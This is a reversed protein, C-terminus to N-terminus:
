PLGRTRRIAWEACLLGAFPVMWWPSRMPHAPRTVRQPPHAQRMADVLAPVEAVPFARGGTAAAALALAEADASSAHLVSPAVTVAADGRLDGSSVSLSYAGAPGARWAGEYVGPEATPWLRVAEDIKADPSVARATLPPLAIVDADALERIRAVITMRGGPRVLAPDVDVDLAPPVAAASSVLVGRWFAGFEEGRYRWADLAGAFIVAGEGRRASFVVPASDAAALVTAAPPLQAPVVLESAHLGAGLAAPADLSRSSFAAVGVLDLYRGAPARDPVFIAVGGRREVFWRLADLDAARLAEPGGIAVVEFPALTSRTLAAPPDGARTAVSQAARQLSSVAVAPQGELARRVFVAPWSVAAEVILMRIPGRVAPVAVDAVNDDDYAEGAAASARVRLSTASIGAPLYRLTTKWQTEGNAWQHSATAVPVGHHELVLETSQGAIDAAALDVRIAVAQDPLRVASAAAHTIAVNPAAPGTDLVWLPTRAAPQTMPAPRSAVLVTASEQQAPDVVFGARTLVSVIGTADRSEPSLVRIVPREARPLPIRPDLIAAAAIAIALWRLWLAHALGPTMM